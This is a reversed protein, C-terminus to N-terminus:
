IPATIPYIYVYIYSYIPATIPYIYIYIYSYIPTTIPYIYVYIYSARYPPYLYLIILLGKGKKNERLIRKGERNM